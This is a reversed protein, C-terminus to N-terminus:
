AAKKADTAAVYRRIVENLDPPIKSPEIRALIFAALRTADTLPSRREPEPIGLAVRRRENVVTVIAKCEAKAAEIVSVRERQTPLSLVPAIKKHGGLRTHTAEDPVLRLVAIREILKRSQLETLGIETECWKIFKEDSGCENRVDKAWEGKRYDLSSQEKELARWRKVFQIMKANNM